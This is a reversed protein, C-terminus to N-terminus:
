RHALRRNAGRDAEGPVPNACGAGPRCGAAALFVRAAAVLLGMANSLLRGAALLEDLASGVVARRVVSVAVLLFAAAGDRGVPLCHLAVTTVRVGAGPHLGDAGPGKARRERDAARGRFEGARRAVPR